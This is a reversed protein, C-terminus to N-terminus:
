GASTAPERLRRHRRLIEVVRDLPLAFVTLDNAGTMTRAACLANIVAEECAQIAARMVGDTAFPSVLSRQEVGPAPLTQNTTSFAVVLEGSLSDAATGARALGLAAHRALRQLQNAALPVDTAIVVIV